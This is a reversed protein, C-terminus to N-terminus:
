RGGERRDIHLVLGELPTVTIGSPDSLLHSRSRNTSLVLRPRVTNGVIEAPLFGPTTAFNLVVVQAGMATDQHLVLIDQGVLRMDQLRTTPRRAHRTQILQRYLHLTSGADAQEAAVNVRDADPGIPLWPSGTTFGAGAGAVQPALWPM